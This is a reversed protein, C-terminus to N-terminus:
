YPKEKQKKICHKVSPLAFVTVACSVLLVTFLNPHKTFFTLDDRMPLEACITGTTLLELKALVEGRPTIFSTLGTNTARVVCRRNEVARLIAQGNHEYIAASEAFWSDNASVAILEAGNQVSEAVLLEFISDFCIVSGVKGKGTDFVAASDGATLDNAMYNIENLLPIAKELFARFPLFEGFPVLHRKDYVTQSIGGDPTFMFMSNYSDSKTERFAGLM